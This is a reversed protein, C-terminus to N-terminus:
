LDGLGVRRGPGACLGDDAARVLARRMALLALALPWAVYKFLDLVVAATAFLAALLADDILADIAMGVSAATVGALAAVMALLPWRHNIMLNQM